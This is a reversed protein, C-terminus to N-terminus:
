ELEWEDFFVEDFSRAGINVKAHLRAGMTMRPRISEPLDRFYLRIVQNYSWAPVVVHCYNADDSVDCVRVLTRWPERAPHVIGNIEDQCRLLSARIDAPEPASTKILSPIFRRLRRNMETVVDTYQTCLVGPIGRRYCAALVEDGNFASYAGSAKLGYDCVVAQARDAVGEVFMELNEIPGKEMVPTIRLEEIPYGFADRADADDDVVLIRKIEGNSQRDM